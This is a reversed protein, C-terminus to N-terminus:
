PMSALVLSDLCDQPVNKLLKVGRHLRQLGTLAGGAGEEEAHTKTREQFM